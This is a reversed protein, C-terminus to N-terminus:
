SAQSASPLESYNEDQFFNKKTVNWNKLDYSAYLDYCTGNYIGVMMYWKSNLYFLTPNELIGTVATKTYNWRTGLSKATALHIGHKAASILMCYTDEVKVIYPDWGLNPALPEPMNN